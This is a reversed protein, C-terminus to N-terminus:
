ESDLDFGNPLRPVLSTESTYFTARMEIRRSQGFLVAIGQTVPAVSLNTQEIDDNRAIPWNLRM